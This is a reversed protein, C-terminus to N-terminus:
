VLIDTLPTTSRGPGSGVASISPVVARACTLLVDSTNRSDDSHVHIGPHVLRGGGKGAVVIPQDYTTHSWGEGCDSCLLLVSNDLLNHAGEDIGRLSVCLDSFMQVNWVISENLQDRFFEPDHSMNHQVETHGLHSYVTFGVGGTLMYSAVRTLDCAFAYTLLRTMAEAVLPMPERGNVDVNNQTEEDPQECVPPLQEIFAQLEGIGELHADLRDRDAKSVKAKLANADASVADLVSVRAPGRPDDPPVFSGFLDRWVQRPRYAPALPNTTSRHSIYQM